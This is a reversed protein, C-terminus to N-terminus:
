VEQLNYAERPLQLYIRFAILKVYDSLDLLVASLHVICSSASELAIEDNVRSLLQSSVVSTWFLEM